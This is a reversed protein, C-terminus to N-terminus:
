NNAGAGCRWVELEMEQVNRPPYGTSVDVLVRDLDRITWPAATARSRLDPRWFVKEWRPAVILYVGRCHHLHQLVKPILFPPPFVWALPYDWIQSLADHFVARTDRYDLTCYSSVVRTFRTAFLDIIPTGWKAFIRTTVQPLLHWEPMTQHRSLRDAEANYAGPIHFAVLDIQYVDLLHFIKYTLDLLDGSKSGGENRLYAVATKNDSQLHISTSQLSPGQEKLVKLIVLLEKMNSHKDKEAVLWDGSLKMNNIQAGWAIDSADTVLFHTPHSFHIRSYDGLHNLWWILDTESEKNLTVLKSSRNHHIITLKQLQRYNLRGRPIVFSAFNMMGVLSQFDVLKMSRNELLTLIATRIKHLKQEPLFKQNQWPNWGIGLYEINKRPTLVSKEFNVKWGLYKLMNLTIVVHEKLVIQNTNAILYDDLYVLLRIGRQRLIQAIWNSVAAFTKPASSLGFPLCNMQLIEKRYLLRLFRRHTKSIPLHFYAQSLDIKVLWDNPQLFAPVKHVNILRFPTTLVFQNLSRLDFIPRMSGDTKPVLFMRSLFSPSAHVPVLVRETKMKEIVASMKSTEHTALRSNHRDPLHLPPRNSFPIRYGSIIKLIYSPAGMEKWRKRYCKLQGARFPSPSDINGTIEGIGTPHPLLADTM